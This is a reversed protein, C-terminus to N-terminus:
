GDLWRRAEQEAANLAAELEELRRGLTRCEPDKGWNLPEGYLVTARSTPLVVLFRDWSNLRITWCGAVSVPVVTAGTELALRVAGPHPMRRPGRPGDPTLAVEARGAQFCSLLVRYAASGGRTSSGRVTHYGLRHLLGALLEGDRHQSVLVTIGQGRHLYLPLLLHEHWLVFIISRGAERLHKVRDGHIVKARLASVYTPLIWPALWRM